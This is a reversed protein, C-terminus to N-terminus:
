TIEHEAKALPRGKAKIFSKLEESEVAYTEGGVVFTILNKESAVDIVSPKPIVTSKQDLSYGSDTKKIIQGRELLELIRRLSALTVKDRPLGATSGLLRLLEEESMSPAVSFGMEVHKVFWTKSLVNRLIAWAESEAGWSLKNCFEILSETPVYKGGSGQLLDISAWFRLCGSVMPPSIKALPAIEKYGAPKSEKSYFAVCSKLIDLQKDLGVQDFPLVQNKEEDLQKEDSKPL